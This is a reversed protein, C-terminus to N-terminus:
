PIKPMGEVEGMAYGEIYPVVYEGVNILTPPPPSYTVAFVVTNEWIANMPSAIIGLSLSIILVLVIILHIRRSM